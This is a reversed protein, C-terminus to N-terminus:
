WWFDIYMIKIRLIIVEKKMLVNVCIVNNNDNVYM